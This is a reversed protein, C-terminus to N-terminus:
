IIYLYISLVFLSVCRPQAALSRSSAARAFYCLVIIVISIIIIIAIVDIIMIIIDVFLLLVLM